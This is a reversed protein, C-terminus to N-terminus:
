VIYLSHDGIYWVCLMNGKRGMQLASLARPTGTSSSGCAVPHEDDSTEEKCKLILVRRALPQNM